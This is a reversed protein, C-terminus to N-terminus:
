FGVYQVEEKLQVGFKNRARTKILAALIVFDEATAGGANVLFNGHNQSVMAGGIKKGRLGLEDIIYGAPIVNDKVKVGTDREFEEVLKQNKVVPNKFYSGSSPFDFPQASKRQKLIEKVKKESAERDGKKLRLTASLIILNPNKKFVSNRYDFNCM